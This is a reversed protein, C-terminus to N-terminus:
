CFVFLNQLQLQHLRFLLWQVVTLMDFNLDKSALIPGNQMDRMIEVHHSAAAVLHEAEVSTEAATSRGIVHQRRFSQNVEVSRVHHGVAVLAM